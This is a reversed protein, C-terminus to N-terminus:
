VIPYLKQKAYDTCTIVSHLSDTKMAGASDNARYKHEVVCAFNEPKLQYRKQSSLFNDRLTLHDVSSNEVIFGKDKVITNDIEDKYFKAEEINKALYNVKLSTGCYLKGDQFKRNEHACSSIIEWHSAKGIAETLEHSLLEMTQEVSDFRKQENRLNIYNFFHAFLLSAAIITIVLTAIKQNSLKPKKTTKIKYIM